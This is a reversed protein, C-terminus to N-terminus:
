LRRWCLLRGLRAGCGMLGALLEGSQGFTRLGRKVSPGFRVFDRSVVILVRGSRWAGKGVGKEEDAEGFAKYMVAM